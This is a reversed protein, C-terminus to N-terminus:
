LLFLLLLISYWSLTTSLMKRDCITFLMVSISCRFLLISSTNTRDLPITTQQSYGFTKSTYVVKLTSSCHSLPTMGTQFTSVRGDILMNRIRVSYSPLLIRNVDGCGTGRCTHEYEINMHVYAYSLYEIHM